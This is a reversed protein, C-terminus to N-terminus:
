TVSRLRAIVMRKGRRTEVNVTNYLATATVAVVGAAAGTYIDRIFSVGQWIPMIMAPNNAPIGGVLVLQDEKTGGGKEALSSTSRLRGSYEAIEYRTTGTERLSALRQYARLGLLGRVGEVAYVTLANVGKLWATRFDTTTFVAEGAAVEDEGATGQAEVYGVLDDLGAQDLGVLMSASLDGRLTSEYNRFRALDEVEFRFRGVFRKPKASFEDFTAATADKPANRAQDTPTEGGTIRLTSYDGADIMPQPVQLYSLDTRRFLRAIWRERTSASRANIDTVADARDESALLERDETGGYSQDDALAEWPVVVGPLSSRDCGTAQQLELEAGGPRRDSMVCALYEALCARSRLALFEADERDEAPAEETEVPPDVADQEDAGIAVQLEGELRVMEARDETMQGTNPEEKSSEEALRQRLKSLALEIESRKM